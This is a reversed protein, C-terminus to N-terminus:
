KGKGTHIPKLLFTESQGKMNEMPIKIDFINLWFNLSKKDWTGKSPNKLVYIIERKKYTKLLLLIEEDTGHNLVNEIVLKKDRKLSIKDVNYSWLSGKLKNKVM